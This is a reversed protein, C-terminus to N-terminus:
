GAVELLCHTTQKYVYTATGSANSHHLRYQVASTSSPSRIFNISYMSRTGVDKQYMWADVLTTINTTGEHLSLSAYEGASGATQETYGSVFILIKSSTSSPTLSLGSGIYGGANAFTTTGVTGSQVQLIKGTSLTEFVPAAGAGSSTLVQGDNGTAVVAPDGSADYTIINGDTGGAMKALTIIDDAVDSSTLPAKAPSKGIYAM